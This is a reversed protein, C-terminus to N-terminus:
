QVCVAHGHAILVWPPHPKFENPYIVSDDNGTGQPSALRYPMMELTKKPLVNDNGADYRLETAIMRNPTMRTASVHLFM